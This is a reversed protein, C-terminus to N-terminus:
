VKFGWRLFLLVDYTEAEYSNWYPSLYCLLLVTPTCSAQQAYYSALEWQKKSRAHAAKQFNEARLKAHLAAEARLNNYSPLDDLAQQPVPCPPPCLSPVFTSHIQSDCFPESFFVM